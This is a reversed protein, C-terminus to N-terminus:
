RDNEQPLALGELAGWRMDGGPPACSCREANRDKGCRPCIGRCEQSCLPKLPLAIIIDERLNETLNIIDGEAVPASFRFKDVCIEGPVTKLCRSCTFEVALRVVGRVILENSVMEVNLDYSVGGGPTVGQSDFEMEEAPVIGTLREGGPPIKAIEITLGM